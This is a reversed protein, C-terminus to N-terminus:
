SGDPFNAKVAVNQPIAKHSIPTASTPKIPANTKASVTALFEGAIGDIEKGFILTFGFASLLSFSKAGEIGM